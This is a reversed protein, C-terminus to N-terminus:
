QSLGLRQRGGYWHNQYQGQPNSARPPPTSLGMSRQVGEIQTKYQQRRQPSIESIASELRRKKEPVVYAQYSNTYGNTRRNLNSYPSVSPRNYFYKDFTYQAPSNSPRHYTSLNKSYYDSYSKNNSLQGLASDSMTIFVTAIIALGFRPMTPTM